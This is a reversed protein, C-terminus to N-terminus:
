TGYYVETEQVVEHFFCREFHLPNLRDASYDSLPIIENGHIELVSVEVNWYGQLVLVEEGEYVLVLRKM